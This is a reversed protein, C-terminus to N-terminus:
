VSVERLPSCVFMKGDSYHLCEQAWERYAAMEEDGEQRNAKTVTKGQSTAPLFMVRRYHIEHFVKVRKMEAFHLKETFLTISNSNDELIKAVFATADLVCAAYQMLLRAAGEACGRRRYAAEAIMVEIEFERKSRRCAGTTHRETGEEEEGVAIDDTRNKQATVEGNEDEEEDSDPLLFLNCDGIMTYTHGDRQVDPGVEHVAAAAAAAPAEVEAATFMNRPGHPRYRKCLAKSSVEVYDAQDVSPHIITSMLSSPKEETTKQQPPAAPPPPPADRPAYIIFTLKDLSQLWSAQNEEEEARTLPESETAELLEPRCMWAHYQPVHVPLYPLLLLRGAIELQVGTNIM